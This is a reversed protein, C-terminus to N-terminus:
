ERTRHSRSEFLGGLAKGARSTALRTMLSLYVLTFFSYAPADDVLQKACAFLADHDTMLATGFAGLIIATGYIARGVVYTAIVNVTDAQGPGDSYIVILRHNHEGAPLTEVGLGNRELQSFPALTAYTNSIAELTGTGRLLSIRNSYGEDPRALVFAIEAASDFGCDTSVMPKASTSGSDNSGSTSSAAIPKTTQVEFTGGGGEVDAIHRGRDGRSAEAACRSVAEAISEQLRSLLWSPTIDM